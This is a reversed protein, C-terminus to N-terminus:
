HLELVQSPAENAPLPALRISPQRYRELLADNVLIRELPLSTGAKALTRASLDVLGGVANAGLVVLAEMPRAKARVRLQTALEKSSGEALVVTVPQAHGPVLLSLTTSGSRASTEPQGLVAIGTEEKAPAAILFGRSDKDAMVAEYRPKGTCLANAASALDALVQKHEVGEVAIVTANPVRRCM